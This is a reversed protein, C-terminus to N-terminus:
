RATFSLTTPDPAINRGARDVTNAVRLSYSRGAVLVGPRMTLLVSRCGRDVCAIASAAPMNEDLRYNGLLAAGGAEGFELMPESFTVTLRDGTSAASTVRPRDQDAITVSAANRTENM